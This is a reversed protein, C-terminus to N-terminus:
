LWDSLPRDATGIPAVTDRALLPGASVQFGAKHVPTVQVPAAQAPEAQSPAAQAPEAHFPTAQSPAAHALEVQAPAAHAPAAQAPEAQAQRSPRLPILWTSLRGRRTTTSTAAVMAAPAAEAPNSSVLLGARGCMATRPQNTTPRTTAM